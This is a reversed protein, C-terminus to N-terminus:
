KQYSQKQAFAAYALAKQQTVNKFNNNRLYSIYSYYLGLIYCISVFYFAFSTHWLWNRCVSAIVNSSILKKCDQTDKKDPM